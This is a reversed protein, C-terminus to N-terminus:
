LMKTPIRGRKMEMQGNWGSMALPRFFVCFYVSVGVNDKLKSKLHM